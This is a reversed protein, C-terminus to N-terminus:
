LAIIQNMMPKIMQNLLLVPVLTGHWNVLHARFKLPGIDGCHNIFPSACDQGCILFYNKYLYQSTVMGFKPYM